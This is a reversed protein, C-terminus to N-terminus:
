PTLTHATVYRIMMSAGTASAIRRLEFKSLIKIVMIKYKEFFHLAVDSVNGGAVIVNINAKAVAM